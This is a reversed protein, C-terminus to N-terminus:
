KSCLYDAAESESRKALAGTDGPGAAVRLRVSEKLFLGDVQSGLARLHRGRHVAIELFARGDFDICNKSVKQLSASFEIQFRRYKLRGEHM